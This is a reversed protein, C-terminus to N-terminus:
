QCSVCSLALSVVWSVLSVVLSLALWQNDTCLTRHRFLTYIWDSGDLCM